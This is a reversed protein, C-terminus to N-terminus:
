TQLPAKDRYGDPSKINAKQLQTVGVKLFITLNIELLKTFIVGPQYASSSPHTFVSIYTGFGNLYSM